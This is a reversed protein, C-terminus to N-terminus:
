SGYLEPHTGITLFRVTSKNEHRYIARYSGTINISRCGAWEATLTHNHLLPHFPTSLFLEFREDFSRQIPKQLKQYKKRFEKSFFAQM